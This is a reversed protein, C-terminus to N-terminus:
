IKKIKIKIRKVKDKNEKEKRERDLKKKKKAERAEATVTGIEKTIRPKRKGMIEEMQKKQKKKSNYTRINKFDYEQVDIPNMDWDEAENEDENSSEIEERM